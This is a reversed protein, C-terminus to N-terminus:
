QIRHGVRLVKVDHAHLTPYFERLYQWVPTQYTDDLKDNPDWDYSINLKELGERKILVERGSIGGEELCGHITNTIELVWGSKTKRVNM